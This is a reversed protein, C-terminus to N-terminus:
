VNQFYKMFFFVLRLKFCCTQHCGIKSMKLIKESKFTGMNEFKGSCASKINM